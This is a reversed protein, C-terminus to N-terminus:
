RGERGGRDEGGVAMVARETERNKSNKSNKSNKGFTDVIAQHHTVTAETPDCTTPEACATLGQAVTEALYDLLLSGAAQILHQHFRTDADAFRDAQDDAHHNRLADDMDAVAAAMLVWAQPNHTRTALRIALNEVVERLERLEARQHAAQPGHARWEIIDPDLFNWETVPRVYIGVNPRATILGKSELSRFAERIVTRSVDFREALDDTHFNLDSIPDSTVILQGLEDVVDAHLGRRRRRRHSPHNSADPPPTV